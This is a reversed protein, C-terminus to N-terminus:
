VRRREGRWARVGEKEGGVLSEYGIEGWWARVGEKGAVMDESWM